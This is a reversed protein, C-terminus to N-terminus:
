KQSSSVRELFTNRKQQAEMLLRVSSSCSSQYLASSGSRASSRSLGHSIGQEEGQSISEVKDGSTSLLSAKARYKLVRTLEPLILKNVFFYFVFLCLVAWFFQTFFTLLDLQPM